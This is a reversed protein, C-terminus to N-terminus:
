ILYSDTCFWGKAKYIWQMKLPCKVSGKGVCVKHTNRINVATVGKTQSPYIFIFESKQEQKVTIMGQQYIILTIWKHSQWLVM